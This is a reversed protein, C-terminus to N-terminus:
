SDSDTLAEILEDHLLGNSAAVGGKLKIEEKNYVLRRGCVDSVAGRAEKLVVEPACTDWQGMQDTFNFFIEAKGEAILGLKIGMSGVQEIDALNMEKALKKERERLHSRSIVLCADKMKEKESVRLRKNELGMKLYAGEGAQASYLKNKTPQYVIGLVPRSRESLGIMLCFDGTKNIFDSTGDLPDVIWVREQSIRSLDDKSEESLIPLGYISLEQSIIENAILDAKTVPSRDGKQFVQYSSQSYIEMVARGARRIAKELHDMSIKKM